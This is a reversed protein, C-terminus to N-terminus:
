PPAHLHEQAPDGVSAHTGNVDVIVITLCATGANGTNEMTVAESAANSRGGM